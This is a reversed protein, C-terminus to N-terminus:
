HLSVCVLPLTFPMRRTLTFVSQGRLPKSVQHCCPPPVVQPEVFAECGVDGIKSRVERLLVPSHHAKHDAASNCELMYQARNRPFFQTHQLTYFKNTQGWCAPGAPGHCVNSHTWIIRLLLHDNWMTHSTNIELFIQDNQILDGTDHTHIGQSGGMWEWGFLLVDIRRSFDALQKIGDSVALHLTGSKIM